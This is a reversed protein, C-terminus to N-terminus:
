PTTLEVERESRRPGDHLTIGQNALDWISSRKGSDMRTSYDSKTGCLSTLKHGGSAYARADDAFSVSGPSM